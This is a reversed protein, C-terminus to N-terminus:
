ALSCFGFCVWDKAIKEWNIPFEEWHQLPWLAYKKDKKRIQDLEHELKRTDHKYRQHLQSLLSLRIENATGKALSRQECLSFKTHTHDIKFGNIFHSEYIGVDRNHECPAITGTDEDMTDFMWHPKEFLDNRKSGRAMGIVRKM